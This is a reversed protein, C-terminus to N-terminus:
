IIPLHGPLAKGTSRYRKEHTFRLGPSLRSGASYCLSRGGQAHALNARDGAVVTYQTDPYVSLSCHFCEM